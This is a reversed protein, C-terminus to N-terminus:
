TEELHQQMLGLALKKLFTKRYEQTNNKNSSFLIQANICTIDLLAYFVVLPWRMVQAVTYTGCIQDVTDEGKTPNYDLVIEPKQTRQRNLGADHMTSLLVVEKNKKPLFSVLTAEKQYGFLASNVAQTKHPLFELTIERKNRRMTGIVHDKM